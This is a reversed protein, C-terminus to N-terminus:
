WWKRRIASRNEGLFSAPGSVSFLAGIKVPEAAFAMSGVLLCFFSALVIKFISKSM